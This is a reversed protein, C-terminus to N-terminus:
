AWHCGNRQRRAIYGCAIFGVPSASYLPGIMRQARPRTSLPLCRSCPWPVCHPPTQDEIPMSSEGFSPFPESLACIAQSQRGGVLGSFLCIYRMLVGPFRFRPTTTGAKIELCAARWHSPIRGINYTHSDWVTVPVVLAFAAWYLILFALLARSVLASSVKQADAM